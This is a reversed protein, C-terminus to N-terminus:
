LMSAQPLGLIAALLSGYVTETLAYRRVSWVAGFVVEALELRRDPPLRQIM